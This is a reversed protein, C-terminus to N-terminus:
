NEGDIAAVELDGAGGLRDVNGEGVVELFGSEGVLVIIEEGDVGM